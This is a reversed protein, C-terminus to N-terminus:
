QTSLMQNAIRHFMKISNEIIKDNFDFEPTHLRPWERGAGVLFLAGEKESANILQGFDESFTLAHDMEVIRLQNSIAAQRVNNTCAPDNITASFPEKFAICIDLGQSRATQRALGTIRNSLDELVQDKYARLTLMLSGDGPAVGYHEGGVSIGVITILSYDNSKKDPFHFTDLTSLLTNIANVPSLGNEPSGAHATKGKLRITMGTSAVAMYREKLIIANESFGPMNHMAFAYDPKVMRFKEDEVVRKAGTGNEEAPQFLLVVRGKEPRQKELLAALGALIAMHGDHGCKHSVHDNVSRHAFDNTEHAAIADLDARFLVTDGEQHGNYIFALGHGGIKTLTTDPHFRSVFKLVMAATESENGSLEPRAHLAKRFKVLEHLLSKEM